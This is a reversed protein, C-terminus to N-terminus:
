GRRTRGVTAPDALPSALVGHLPDLFPVEQVDTMRCKFYFGADRRRKLQAQNKELTRTPADKNQGFYHPPGTFGTGASQKKYDAALQCCTALLTTSTRASSAVPAAPPTASLPPPAPSAPAPDRGGRRTGPPGSLHWAQPCSTSAPGGGGAPDPLHVARGQLPRGHGQSGYSLLLLESACLFTQKRCRETEGKLITRRVSLQGDIRAGAPPPLPGPSFASPLGGDPRLRHRGARPFITPAPCSREM